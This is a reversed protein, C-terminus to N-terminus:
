DQSVHITLTALISQHSLDAEYSEDVLYLVLGDTVWGTAVATGQSGGRAFLRGSPAGVYIAVHNTGPANWHITATGGARRSITNPFALNPVDSRDIFFSAAGFVQKATDALNGIVRVSLIGLTGDYSLPQNNSVDQLYFTTGDFVWGGAIATGQSGARAFLPGSPSGVHIEIQRADPANWGIYAIGSSTRPTALITLPEAAKPLLAPQLFFSAKGYMQPVYRPTHIIHVVLMALTNCAATTNGRSADQLYFAMGDSVWEGTTATGHSGGAAFLQGDPSGVHIEVVSAKSTNWILHAVGYTSSPEVRITQPLNPDAITSPDLYFRSLDQKNELITPHYQLLHAILVGLTNSQSLSKGDSCDQLYFALGESVWPGTRATGEAGGSAFLKGGPSGIHIEVHKAEPVNL